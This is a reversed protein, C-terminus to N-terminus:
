RNPNAIADAWGNWALTGVCPSVGPCQYGTARREGDAFTFVVISQQSSFVCLQASDCVGTMDPDFQQISIPAPHGPERADLALLALVAVDGCAGGDPGCDRVLTGVPYGDLVTGAVASPGCAAAAGSLAMALMLRRMLRDHDV